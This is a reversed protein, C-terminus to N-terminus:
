RLGLRRSCSPWQGWGSRAQLKKGMEIQTARSHQHPLGTGGVSRWTQPHFQLGGYYGNGTNAAWNGGSECRALRDWVSDGSSTSTPTTRPPPPDHTGVLIVRDQPPRVVEEDVLEREVVEGDVLTVVYTDIRLGDRGEQQVRTTGRRLDGTKRRVEQHELPVEELEEDTEVRQIVVTPSAGFLPTATGPLVIDDEGVEIGTEVLVAEVHSALTVVEHDHGDVTITVVVPLTVRITDGHAIPATWGPTIEAGLARLDYMGAAELVGAVSGVPATVRRAVSGEIEIDVTIARDVRVDLGNTVPTEPEPIVEDAPGVEVDLRELVEAVTGGYLRVAHTEGDVVVEVVSTFGYAVAVLAGLVVVGAAIRVRRM